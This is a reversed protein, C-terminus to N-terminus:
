GATSRSLGVPPMLCPSPFPAFEAGSVADGVLGGTELWFSGSMKSPRCGDSPDCSFVPAHVRSAGASVSAPATSPLLRVAGPSLAGM